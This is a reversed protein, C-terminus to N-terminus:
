SVIKRRKGRKRKISTMDLVLMGEDNKEVNIVLPRDIVFAYHAFFGPAKVNVSQRRKSVPLSGEESPSTATIIGIQKKTKDFFLVVNKIKALDFKEVSVADFSILGSPRIRARPQATKVVDPIYKEFAM